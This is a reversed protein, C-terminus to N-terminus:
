ALEPSSASVVSYSYTVRITTDLFSFLLGAFFQLVFQQTAMKDCGGVWGSRAPDFRSIGHFPSRIFGITGLVAAGIAVFEAGLLFHLLGDFGALCLTRDSDRGLVVM